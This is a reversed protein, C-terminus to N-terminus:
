NSIRFRFLHEPGFNIKVSNYKNNVPLVKDFLKLHSINKLSFEENDCKVQNNISLFPLNLANKEYLFMNIFFHKFYNLSLVVHKFLSVLM